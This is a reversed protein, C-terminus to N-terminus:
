RGELLGRLGFNLLEDVAEEPSKVEGKLLGKGVELFAGLIARSVVPVSCERVIGMEMGRLLAREILFLVQSFFEELVRDFQPNLRYPHYFVLRATERDEEILKLVSLLNERLQELPRDLPLRKLRKGIESVTEELVRRYVDDKNKFYLYFTGRAIGLSSTIDSVTLSHFGKESFLHKAKLLIEEERKRVSGEV